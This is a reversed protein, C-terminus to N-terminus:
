ANRLAWATDQVLSMPIRDKLGFDHGLKLLSKRAKALSPKLCGDTKPGWFIINEVRLIKLGNLLAPSCWEGISRAIRGQSDLSLRIKARRYFTAKQGSTSDTFISM